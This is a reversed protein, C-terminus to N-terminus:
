QASQAQKGAEEDVDEAKRRRAGCWALCPVFLIPWLWCLCCGCFLGAFFLGIILAILLELSRGKSDWPRANTASAKAKAVEAELDDIEDVLDDVM